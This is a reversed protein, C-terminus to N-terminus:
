VASPTNDVILPGLMKFESTELGNPDDGLAVLTIPQVTVDLVEARLAEWAAHYAMSAPSNPQIGWGQSITHAEDEFQESGHTQVLAMRAAEIRKAEPELADHMRALRFKAIQPIARHGEMIKVLGITMDYVQGATLKM